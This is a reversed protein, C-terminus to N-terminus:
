LSLIQINSARYKGNDGVMLEFNVMQGPQVGDAGNLESKMFFADGEFEESSIFGFGKVPNFTKVSGSMVAGANAQQFNAGPAADTRQQKAQPVLATFHAQQQLGGDFPRKLGVPQPAPSTGNSTKVERAQVRGDDTSVPLFTVNTGPQIMSLESPDVDRTQFRADSMGAASIFGYGHKESYSKIVGGVASGSMPTPAQRQPQWQHQQQMPPAAFGNPAQMQQMGPPGGAKGNQLQVECARLRGDQSPQVKFLVLQNQLANRAEMPVSALEKKGFMVEQGNELMSSAIFGFGKADNYSKVLGPHYEQEFPVGPTSRLVVSTARGRGDEQNAVADYFVERGTLFKGHLNKCDDPMNAMRFFVDGNESAIFGFEKLANYSKVTGALSM